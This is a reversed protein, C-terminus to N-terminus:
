VKKKIFDCFIEVLGPDFQTGSGARIEELAADEPLGQHYPRDSILADWADVIAFLRASLPIEEGALGRPYGMGDWREHHCYPIELAPELFPIDKLMEYAYAPHNRMLKWEKEDLKGPKLLIQDPIGMKGIDHLMAGRRIHEVQEETLNLLRAMSVTMETVRLTHGSTEKDKLELAKAWGELTKDYTEVMRHHSQNLSQVMQNFSEALIGIEDNTESNVKISLDGATVAQSAKMLNTLPRTLLASLTFGILIILIIASLVLGMINIITPVTANVLVNKVLATGLLGLDDGGRVEWPGIIESYNLGNSSLARKPPNRRFSEVEQDKLIQEVLEADIGPLQVDDPFSSAIPKGSFDYLTVQALTAERLEGAVRDLTIGVLIVGVFQNSSNRVPGAVFFKEGHGSDAYGSYKDGSTDAEQYIVSRIFPWENYPTTSISEVLYEVGNVNEDVRISLLFNGQNNLFCVEGVQNNVAIGLALNQLQNTNEDEMADAIGQTYTLLRLTDLQQNEVEVMASAALIGAEYLQNQYREDVTELIIRRVLLFAGLAIVITLILYPITIKYRIPWGMNALHRQRTREGAKERTITKM